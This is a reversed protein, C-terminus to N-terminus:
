ESTVEFVRDERGGTITVQITDEDLREFIVSAEKGSPTTVVYSGSQPCPDEGRAEIEQIELLWSGSEGTWSRSGNVLIGGALGIEPDLLSQTRDGTGTGTHSNGDKDAWEWNATHVVHRTGANFDWEVTASGDLTVEGNTIGEWQHSVTAQSDGVEELTITAVGAWTHGNYTCEDDLTGFDISVVNSERTVTSCPIQSEAFARLEEAAAEVAQGLTFSTSIEITESGLDEAKGSAMSESFVEEVETTSLTDNQFCALLVLMTSEEM